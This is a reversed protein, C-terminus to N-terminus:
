CPGCRNEKSQGFFDATCVMRRHEPSLSQWWSHDRPDPLARGRNAYDPFVVSGEPLDDPPQEGEAALYCLRAGFALAPERADAYNDRDVSVNVTLSPADLDRLLWYSRTYI